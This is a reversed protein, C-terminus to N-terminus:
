KGDQSKKELAHIAGKLIIKIVDVEPLREKAWVTYCHRIISVLEAITFGMLMTQAVYAM